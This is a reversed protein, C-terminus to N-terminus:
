LAGGNKLKLYTSIAQMVLNENYVALFHVGKRRLQREIQLLNESEFHGSLGEYIEDMSTVPSSFIPATGKPKVSIVVVRHKRTILLLSKLFSESLLPDDLCTIFFLLARKRIKLAITSIVEDFDPTVLQPSLDFIAQRCRLFHANGAGASIFKHVKDSFTVLGFHDQEKEAALAMLLTAMIGKELFSELSSDGPTAMALEVKRAMFRSCDLAVYVEHMREVQFVKSVPQRRKATVKWHIDHFSDGRTYERLKEFNRGKGAQNRSHAGERNRLLILAADKKTELLNPFVVIPISVSMSRRKNWFGFTSVHEMYCETLEYSGRTFARFPWLLLSNQVGAALEITIEEQDPTLGTPFPLAIRFLTKKTGPNLIEMRIAQNKGKTVSVTGTTRVGLNKLFADPLLADVLLLLVFCGIAGYAVAGSAPFLSALTILPVVILGFAILLKRTPVM